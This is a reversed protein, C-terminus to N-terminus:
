IFFENLGSAATKRFIKVAQQRTLRITHDRSCLFFTQRELVSWITRTRPVAPRQLHGYPREFSPYMQDKHLLGVVNLLGEEANLHRTKIPDVAGHMDYYVRDGIVGDTAALFFDFGSHHFTSNHRRTNYRIDLKGPESPSECMVAVSTAGYGKCLCNRCRITLRM